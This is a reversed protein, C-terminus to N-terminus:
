LISKTVVQLTPDDDDPKCSFGLNKVLALMGLNDSLVMGEM